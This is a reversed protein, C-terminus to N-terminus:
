KGSLMSLGIAEKHRLTHVAIGLVHSVALGLFVYAVIEHIDEITGKNWRLEMLYGTVALVLACVMMGLAAWSSAPNHGLYAKTKSTMLDKFYHFLHSIKLDFEKFLAYKNGLFGWLVRLIVSFALTLGILKHYVFAVQDDDVTQSIIFAIVFGLAFTWHFLRMPLDYVLRKQIM